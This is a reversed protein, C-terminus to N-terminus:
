YRFSKDLLKFDALAIATVSEIVVPARLAICSDHRGTIKLKEPKGSTINITNQIKAISSAPKVAVRFVIDNGNSLGGNIGGSHNSRTKGSISILEDNHESGFM